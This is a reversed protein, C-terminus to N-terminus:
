VKSGYKGNGLSFNDKILFISFYSFMLVLPIFIRTFSHELQILVTHPTLLIAVILIFFYLLFNFLIFLILKKSNNFCKYAVITFIFLSILLKENVSLFSVINILNDSNTIRDILKNFPDNRLFEMKINENIYMSKWLTIPILAVLTTFFLKFNVKRKYLIDIIFGSLFIVLAMVGGENKSLSLISFFIFLSLYLITKPSDNRASIIKYTILISAVFYLAIIGDMLGNIFLRGSFFLMLFIWLLVFIKDRFFSVLLVIPPLIIIVNTSKPYIENWYGLVQAFTASLTIALKPKSYVLDTFYDIAENDSNLRFYLDSEYFLIKSSFLYIDRSDIPTSPSGLCIILLLFIIVKLQWYNNFKIPTFFFLFTLLLFIFNIHRLLQWTNIAWFFYNLLISFALIISYKILSENIYNNANM